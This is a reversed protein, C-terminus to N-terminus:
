PQARKFLRYREHRDGARGGEWILQWPEQISNEDEWLDQTILLDCTRDHSRTYVESTVVDGFYYIMALQADGVDQSIICEYKEPLHAILDAVMPRYTKRADIWHFLLFVALAWGVTIGAAWLIFPREPSRKINFVLVFWILTVTVGAVISWFRPVTQYEPQLRFIHEALRTPVGFQAASFYVWAVLSFVTVVMIGFWYYANVAGRPLQNIAISALLSLPLLMPLAMVDRGEGALTLFGFISVFAVLPLQVERKSLGEKGQVWLSWLAFLWAPWAFWPLVDLYYLHGQHDKITLLGLLQQQSQSWWQGFLEPYGNYLALPWAAVLPATTLLAMASSRAFRASRYRPSIIVMGLTTVILMLPESVGSALFALGVGVGLWAGGVLSRRPALALGYLAISLAALLAVASILQHGRVLLGTCGILMLPAIWTRNGGWLERAALATFVLLLALWIGVSLRAADHLAFLPSLAISSLAAGYHILPPTELFPTDGIRPVVWDGSKLMRYAAGFTYAEDSKWPDHGVLGLLVWAICIVITM